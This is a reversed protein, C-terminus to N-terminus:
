KVNDPCSIVAPVTGTANPPEPAVVADPALVFKPTAIPESTWAYWALKASIAPNDFVALLKITASPLLKVNFVAASELVAKPSPAKAVAPVILLALQLPASKATAFPPVPAESAAPALVAKPTSIPESTWAYSAPRREIAANVVAAFLIIYVVSASVYATVVRVAAPLFKNSSAVAAACHVVSPNPVPLSTVNLWTM